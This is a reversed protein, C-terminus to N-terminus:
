INRRLEQFYINIIQFKTRIRAIGYIFINSNFLRLKGSKNRAFLHEILKRASGCKVLQTLLCEYGWRAEINSVIEAFECDKFIFIVYERTGCSFNGRRYLMKEWFIMVRLLVTM